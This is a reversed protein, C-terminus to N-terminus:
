GGRGANEQRMREEAAKRFKNYTIILKGSSFIL